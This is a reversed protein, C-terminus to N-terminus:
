RDHVNYVHSNLANEQLLSAAFAIKLELNLDKYVNVNGKVELNLTDNLQM